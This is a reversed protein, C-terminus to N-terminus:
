AVRQVVRTPATAPHATPARTTVPLGTLVLLRVKHKPVLSVHPLHALPATSPSTYPHAILLAAFLFTTVLVTAIKLM